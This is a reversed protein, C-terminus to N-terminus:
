GTFRVFEFEGDKNKIGGVAYFNKKYGGLAWGLDSFKYYDDADLITWFNQGLYIRRYSYGYKQKRYLM